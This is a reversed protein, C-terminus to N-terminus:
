PRCALGRRRLHAYLEDRMARAFRTMVIRHLYPTLHLLDEYLLRHEALYPLAKNGGTAKYLDWFAVRNDRAILKIDRRLKAIQPRPVIKGRRKDGYPARTFVVIPVDDGLA